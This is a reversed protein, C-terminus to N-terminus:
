RVYTKAVKNGHRRIYLGASPNAVRVGQLNYYEVPADNDAEVTNIGSFYDSYVIRKSNVFEESDSNKNEEIYETPYGHVPDYTVTGRLGETTTEESDSYHTNDTSMDSTVLGFRDVTYVKKTDRSYDIYHNGEGDDDYDVEFYDATYSGYNDTRKYDISMLKENNTMVLSSSYNIGNYTVTLNAPHPWEDDTITASKIRNKGFYLDSTPEDFDNSTIQGDTNEWTIDKLRTYYETQGDYTEGDDITVAKGDAGYGIEIFSMYSPEGGDYSYYDQIKVINNDANRTIKMGNTFNNYEGKTSEEIVLNKIVSDYKYTTTSMLTAEGEAGGTYAYEKKSAVRGESDYTFETYGGQGAEKIIRSESDYTYNVVEPEGWKNNGSDWYSETVCRAYWNVAESENLATIRNVTAQAKAMRARIDSAPHAAGASLVIGAAAALLLTKKM